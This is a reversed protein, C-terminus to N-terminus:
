PERDSWVLLENGFPGAFAPVPGRPIRSRPGTRDLGTAAIQIERLLREGEISAALEPKLLKLAVPRHHELDKAPYVMAMAGRWLEREISYGAFV